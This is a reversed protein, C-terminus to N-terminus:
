EYGREPEPKMGAAELVRTIQAKAMGRCQRAPLEPIPLRVKLLAPLSGPQSFDPGSPFDIFAFCVM